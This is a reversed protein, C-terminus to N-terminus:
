TLSIPLIKKVADEEILHNFKKFKKSLIGDKVKNDLETDWNRSYYSVLGEIYWSPLNILTSNKVQSGLSGGYIMNEVMLRAIGGRIQRDFHNLDGDFYLFIKTGIIHTVGGTNYRENNMLGINSQKLDAYTNYVIFQTKSDLTTELKKEIEPIYKGAYDAVHQALEKGNLYYYVDYNNFRFYTWLFDSYQVRNKGFTLQSGNYFQASANVSLLCVALAIFFLRVVLVRGSRHPKNM